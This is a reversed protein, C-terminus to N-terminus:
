TRRPRIEFGTWHESARSLLGPACPNSLWVPRFFSPSEHDSPFMLSESGCQIAVGGGPRRSTINVLRALEKLMSLYGGFCNVLLVGEQGDSISLSPTRDEHCPCRVMGYEGHWRGGLAATISLAVTM